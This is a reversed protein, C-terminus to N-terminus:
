RGAGAASVTATAAAHAGVERVDRITVLRDRALRGDSM